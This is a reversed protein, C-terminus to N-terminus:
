KQELDTLDWEGTIVAGSDLNGPQVIVEIMTPGDHDLADAFTDTLNEPKVVREAFELNFADAM